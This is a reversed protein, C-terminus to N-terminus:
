KSTSICRENILLKNTVKGSGFFHGMLKNAKITRCQVKSIGTPANTQRERPLDTTFGIQPDPLPKQMDPINAKSINLGKPFKEAQRQIMTVYPKRRTLGVFDSKVYPREVM